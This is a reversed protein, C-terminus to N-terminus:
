CTAPEIGALLELSFFTLSNESANKEKIILLDM